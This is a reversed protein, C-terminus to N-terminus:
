EAAIKITEGASKLVYIGRKMAARAESVSTFRGLVVGTVSVVEVESGADEESSCLMVISTESTSFYMKELESLTFRQTGSNNVAVLQGGSVTIVLSEAAISEATGDTAQMVMYPYEYEASSATMVGLVCLLAVIGKKM